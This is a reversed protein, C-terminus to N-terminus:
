HQIVVPTGLPVHRLKSMNPNFVRVCGHSVRHGQDSAVATGHIAMRGGGAWDTIVNSFGSLGLAYVGYPSGPPQPISAWVYFTGTATPFGPAGVGVRFRDAVKGGRYWTLTFSSLDILLREREPVLKISDAPVWGAKDNPRVPLLVQYWPRGDTGQRAGTVLM